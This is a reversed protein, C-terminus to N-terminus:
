CTKARVISFVLSPVVLLLISLLIIQYEQYLFILISSDTNEWSGKGIHIAYVESNANLNIPDSTLGFPHFLKYPYHSLKYSFRYKEFVRNLIGPGTTFMITLHRSYYLPTRKSLELEIFLKSWFKHGSKSYMLSNSIHIDNYLKNPTEVLYLTDMYKATVTDWDRNCYYDMDAYLGGYRHLMFYRVVDCRQIHYKYGDYLELHQPYHKKVLSRCQDFNWIVHLWTPNKNKWSNHYKQLSKLAKAAETKNPIIGFWIQHIIKNKRKLLETDLKDFDM